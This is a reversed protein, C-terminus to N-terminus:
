VDEVQVSREDMLEDRKEMRQNMQNISEHILVIDLTQKDTHTLDTM